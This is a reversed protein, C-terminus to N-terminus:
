NEIPVGENGLYFKGDEIAELGLGRREIAQSLIQGQKFSALRHISLASIIEKPYAGQGISSTGKSYSYGGQSESNIGTNSITNMNWQVMKSATLKMGAPWVEVGSSNLFTSRCFNVIFGQVEPILATILADQATGTISLFTKVETLTVVAM